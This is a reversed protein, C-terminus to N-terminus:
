FTLITSLSLLINTQYDQKAAQTSLQAITYRWICVSGHTLKRGNPSGQAIM